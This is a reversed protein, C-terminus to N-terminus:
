IAIAYRGGCCCSLLHGVCEQFVEIPPKGGALGGQGHIFLRQSFGFIQQPFSELM